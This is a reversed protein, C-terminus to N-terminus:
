EDDKWVPSDTKAGGTKRLRARQEQRAFLSDRVTKEQQYLRDYEKAEDSRLQEQESKHDMRFGMDHFEEMQDIIKEYEKFYESEKTLKEGDEVKGKLSEIQQSINEFQKELNMKEEDVAKYPEDEYDRKEKLREEAKREFFDGEKEDDTL